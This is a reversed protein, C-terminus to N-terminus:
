GDAVNERCGLGHPSASEVVKCSAIPYLHAIAAAFARVTM